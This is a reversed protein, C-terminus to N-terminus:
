KTLKKYKIKYIKPDKFDKMDYNKPNTPDLPFKDNGKKTSVWKLFSETLLNSSIIKSFGKNIVKKNFTRNSRELGMMKMQKKAILECLFLDEMAIISKWRGVNQKKLKGSFSFVKSQDWKKDDIGKFYKENIMKHNYKIELFKCVEKITTSSNKKLENFKVIHIKKNYKKKLAYTYNILDVYNFISILYDNKKAITSKKFSCIIDRPDRLLIIVKGNPFIKLYNSINRWENGAHEGAISFKKNKFIKSCVLKYIDSYNFINKKVQSIIENYDLNIGFRYKSRICFQNILSQYNTKKKISDYKKFYYRFFNVTGSSVKIKNNVNLMKTFLAGGSRYSSTIFVTNIKKM